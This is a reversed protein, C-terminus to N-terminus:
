NTLYRRSLNIKSEIPRKPMRAHLRNGTLAVRLRGESEELAKERREAHERAAHERAASRHMSESFGSIALGIGIFLVLAVSDGATGVNTARLPALWLYDVVASSVLTAAVGPWLGGFWATVMIAPYFAILPFRYGFLSQLGAGAATACAASVVAVTYRALRTRDAM